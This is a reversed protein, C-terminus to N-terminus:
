WDMVADAAAARGTNNHAASIRAILAIPVVPPVPVEPPGVPLRAPPARRTGPRHGMRVVPLPAFPARSWVDDCPSARSRSDESLGVVGLFDHCVGVFEIADDAARM